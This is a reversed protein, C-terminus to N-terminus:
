LDLGLNGATPRVIMLFSETNSLEALKAIKHPLIAHFLTVKPDVISSLEYYRKFRAITTKPYELPRFSAM